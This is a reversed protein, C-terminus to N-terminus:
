LDSLHNVRAKVRTAILHKQRWRSRNHHHPLSRGDGDHANILRVTVRPLHTPNRGYRANSLALTPSSTASGVGVPVRM